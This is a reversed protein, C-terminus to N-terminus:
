LISRVLLSDTQFSELELPLSAQKFFSSNEELQGRHITHPQNFRNFSPFFFFSSSSLFVLISYAAKLAPGLASFNNQNSRFMEPLRLNLTSLQHTLALTARNTSNRAISLSFSHFKDLLSLIADKCESVNVLLDTTQPLFVDSLDPVVMMQPRTLGAQM